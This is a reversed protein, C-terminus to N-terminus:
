HCFTSLFDFCGYDWARLSTGFSVLLNLDTKGDSFATRRSYKFGKNAVVVCSVFSNVVSCNGLGSTFIASCLILSIHIGLYM